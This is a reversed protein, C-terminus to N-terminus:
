HCSEYLVEAHLVRKTVVAIDPLGDGDLDGIAMAVLYDNPDTPYVQPPGFTAPGSNPYRSVVPTDPLAYGATVIDDLGDRQLDAVGLLSNGNPDEGAVVTVEPLFAGMGDNLLVGITPGSWNTVALDPHGDGNLDAVAVQCDCGSPGQAGISYLVEPALTGDGRGKYVAVHEDITGAVVDFAGDGDLDVIAISSPGRTYTGGMPGSIAVNPYLVEAGLVGGGLNLWVGVGGGSQTALDQEAVAVDPM